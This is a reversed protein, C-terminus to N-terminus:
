GDRQPIAEKEGMEAMQEVARLPLQLHRLPCWKMSVSIQGRKINNKYDVINQLVFHFFLPDSFLRVSHLKFITMM